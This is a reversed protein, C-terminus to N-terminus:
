MAGRSNEMQAVPASCGNTQKEDMKEHAHLEVYFRFVMLGSRELLEGDEGRDSRRGM